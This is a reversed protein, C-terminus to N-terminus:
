LDTQSHRERRYTHTEFAIVATGTVEQTTIISKRVGTCVTSFTIWSPGDGIHGM